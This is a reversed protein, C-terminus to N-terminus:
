TQNASHKTTPKLPYKKENIQFSNWMKRHVASGANKPKIPILCPFKSFNTPSNKESGFPVDM